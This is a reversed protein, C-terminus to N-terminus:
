HSHKDIYKFFTSKVPPPVAGARAIFAKGDASLYHMEACLLAWVQREQFIRSLQQLLAVTTRLPSNTGRSASASRGAGRGPKITPPVSADPILGFKERKQFKGVGVSSVRVVPGRADSEQDHVTAKLVCPIPIAVGLVVFGIFKTSM